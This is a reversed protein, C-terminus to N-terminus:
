FIQLRLYRGGICRQFLDVLGPLLELLDPILHGTDSLCEGGM